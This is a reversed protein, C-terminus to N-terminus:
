YGRAIRDRHLTEIEKFKLSLTTIIPEGNELTQFGKSSSYNVDIDTLVCSSIKNIHTNSFETRGADANNFVQGYEIDFEAPYLYLFNGYGQLIEPHAFYKFMFIIDKVVKAEDESRPAFTYEFSFQRNGVHRFMIDKKHNVATRSLMSVTQNTSALIRGFKTAIGGAEAGAKGMELNSIAEGAAKLGATIEQYNQEQALSVLLDEPMEYSMNYSARVNGPTYLTINAALRKLRQTLRFEEIALGSLFYGAAAGTVAGAVGGLTAAGASGLKGKFTKKIRDTADLGLSAGAVGGAIASGAKIAEASTQNQFSRNQQSYDAYGTTAVVDNKVLRSEETLNIYFRIFHSNGGAMPYTLDDVGGASMKFDASLDTDVSEYITPMSRIRGATQMDTMTSGSKTGIVNGQEDYIPTSM